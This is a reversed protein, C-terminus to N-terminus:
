DSFTVREIQFLRLRVDTWPDSDSTVLEGSSNVVRHTPIFVPIPAARNAAAAARVAKPNGSAAALASYTIKAGHPVCRIEDWIRTRAGNSLWLLPCPKATKTHISEGRMRITFEEVANKLMIFRSTGLLEVRGRGYEQLRDQFESKREGPFSILVVGKESAAIWVTVGAASARAM